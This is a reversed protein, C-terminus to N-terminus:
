INEIVWNAAFIGFVATVAIYSGPTEKNFFSKEQSYIVQLSKVEKKRLEKRVIRAIGCNNTSFIDGVKVFSPDKKGGAGMSSVIKINNNYIECILDVKDKLIDIADIVFDPKWELIIDTNENTIYGEYKIFSGEPNIKEFRKKIVEAKSKKINSYDTHIQRNINSIHIRDGDILLLNNFGTRCLVEAAVSGVGGLGVIVVRTEKIKKIKESSFIFKTKSLINEKADM